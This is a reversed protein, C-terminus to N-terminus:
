TQAAADGTISRTLWNVLDILGARTEKARPYVLCYAQGVPISRQDIVILRGAAIDAAGLGQQGLAVGVGDRALDLALSSIGIKYGLTPDGRSIGIDEFWTKWTPHSIFAPGWNTHILDEDPVSAMGARRLAPNRLLYDPSCVPAVKDKLLPITVMEPYFSLGYSFRLDIDYRAFDVPDEESRLEFRFNPHDRKYIGLKPAMWREAVSPLASVVLRSRARGSVVQQTIGSIAQLAESAGSFITLGADTLMIRNNYRRFLQKGLFEELNKVQQSVAAPSVGLEEAATVYSGSRAAAEFARLANLPPLSLSM